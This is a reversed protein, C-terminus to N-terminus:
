VGLFINAYSSAMKLGMATGIVQLYHDGHFTSKNNKRLLTIMKVLCESPPYKVPWINYVEECADLCDEHMINTYFYIVNMFVLTLDSSLLNLDQMKWPYDTTVNIHSSLDEVHQSLHFDVFEENNGTPHDNASVFPRWPNYAKHVKQLFILDVRNLIKQHWINLLKIM